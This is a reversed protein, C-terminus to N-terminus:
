RATGQRVRGERTTCVKWAHMPVELSFCGAGMGGCSVQRVSLGTQDTGRLVQLGPLLFTRYFWRWFLTNMGLNFLYQVTSSSVVRESVRDGGGGRKHQFYFFINLFIYLVGRTIILRGDVTDLSRIHGFFFFGVRGEEGDEFSYFFVGSWDLTCRWRWGPIQVYCNIVKSM